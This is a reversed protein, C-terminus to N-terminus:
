YMSLDAGRVGVIMDCDFDSLDMKKKSISLLSNTKKNNLNKKSCSEQHSCLCGILNTPVIFVLM